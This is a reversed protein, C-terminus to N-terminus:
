RIDAGKIPSFFLLPRYQMFIAIDRKHHGGTAAVPPSKVVFLTFWLINVLNILFWAKITMIGFDINKCGYSFKVFIDSMAVLTLFIMTSLSPTSSASTVLSAEKVLSKPASERSV